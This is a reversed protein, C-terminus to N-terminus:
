ENPIKCGNRPLCSPAGSGGNDYSLESFPIVKDGWAAFGVRSFILAVKDKAGVFSVRKLTYGPDIVYYFNCEYGNDGLGCHMTYHFCLSKVCRHQMVALNAPILNDSGTISEIKVDGSQITAGSLNSNSFVEINSPQSVCIYAAIALCNIPM